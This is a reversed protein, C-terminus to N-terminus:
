SAGFVLEPPRSSYACITLLSVSWITVELQAAQSCSAAAPRARADLLGLVEEELLRGGLALRDQGRGAVGAVVLAVLGAREDRGEALVQERDEVGAALGVHQGDPPEVM